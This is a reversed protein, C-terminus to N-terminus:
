KEDEMQRALDEESAAATNIKPNSAGINGSSYFNLLSFWGMLGALLASPIENPRLLVLGGICSVVSFILGRWIFPFRSKGNQEKRENEIFNAILGGIFAALIRLGLWQNISDGSFLEAFIKEM